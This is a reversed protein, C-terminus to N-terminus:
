HAVCVYWLASNVLFSSVEIVVGVWAPILVLKSTGEDLLYIAIITHSVANWIM